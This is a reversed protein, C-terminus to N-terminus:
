DTHPLAIVLIFFSVAHGVDYGFGADLAAIGVADVNARDITKM